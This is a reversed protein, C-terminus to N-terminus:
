KLLRDLQAIVTDLEKKLTAYRELADRGVKQDVGTTMRSLYTIHAQLGPKGYRVAQTNLQNAIEDVLSLKSQEVPTAAKLQAQLARVRATTQNVSAVLAAMRTNHDFQEQLDATTIGDAAIRPDILVTVPATLTDAGVKLRAEYKGPVVALGSQHRGDWVFRNHGAKKTVRNLVITSVPATRGEMMPADPDAQQEGGGGGRRGGPRAAPTESNYSNVVQGRANVIDITVPGAPASPLYYEITPGLIEPSM